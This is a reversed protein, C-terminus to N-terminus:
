KKPGCQRAVPAMLEALGSVHFAPIVPRANHPTYGFRLTGARTLREAFAAGDPAFLANHDAADSWRETRSPEDDFSFSVTHDETNPEMQMASWTFVFVETSQSLCRVVLMPRVHRMWIPVMNEAAVEFAAANRDKGVWFARNDTTWKVTAARPPPAAASAPRAPAAAAPAAAVGPSSTGRAMLLAFAIIGVAAGGCLTLMLPRHGAVTSASPPTVADPARLDSSETQVADSDSRTLSQSTWKECGDCVTASEPIERGCLSCRQLAGEGAQIRV